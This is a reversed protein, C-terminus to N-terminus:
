NLNLIPNALNFSIQTIISGVENEPIGSIVKYEEEGLQHQRERAKKERRRRRRWENGENSDDGDNYDNYNVINDGSDSNSGHGEGEDDDNDNPPEKLFLKISGARYREVRAVDKVEVTLLPKVMYTNCAESFDPVRFVHTKTVLLFSGDELRCHMVYEDSHYAGKSITRLLTSGEALVPNYPRLTWNSSGGGSSSSSSSGSSQSTSSIYRPNRVRGAGCRYSLSSSSSSSSYSGLAYVSNSSHSNSNASNIIGKATQTAMDLTGVAPKVVAGVMGLGLGKVFGAFGEQRAGKIPEMVVGTVGELIGAGLDKAGFLLGEGLHRPDKTAALMHGRQYDQDMSLLAVGKGLTGLFSRSSTFIGLVTNRILSITGKGLGHAFDKTGKVFGLSPEYFFDYIGKGCFNWLMMPAGICDLRFVVKYLQRLLQTQYYGGVLEALRSESYFPNRLMLASLAIPAREVSLFSMGGLLERVPNTLRGTDDGDVMPAFSFNCRIPNIHLLEFYIVKSNAEFRESSKEKILEVFSNNNSNSRDAVGNGSVSSGKRGGGRKSSSSSSSSSSSNNGSNWSNRRSNNGSNNGSSWNSGNCCCGSSGSSNSYGSNSNSRGSGGGNESSGSGNFLGLFLIFHNLLAEDLSLDFEGIQLALYQFYDVRESSRATSKVASFTIMDSTNDGDDDDRHASPRGAILVPYGTVYLQNDVQFNGVVLTATTKKDGSTHVFRAHTLTAYLLEAPPAASVVSLGVGALEVTLTFQSARARLPSSSSSSTTTNNSNIGSSTSSNLSGPGGFAPSTSRSPLESSPASEADSDGGMGDESVVLVKTAGELKVTATYVTGEESFGGGGGGGGGSSSSSNSSSSNNNNSNGSPVFLRKVLGIKDLNLPKPFMVAGNGGGYSALSPEPFVALLLRRNSHTPEDWAYPITAGPHVTTAIPLVDEDEGEGLNQAVTIYCATENEIRYATEDDVCPAFSVVKTAEVLSVSAWVFRFAEGDSNSDAPVKLCINGIDSVSFERSWARRGASTKGGSGSNGISIVLNRPAEGDQIHLPLMAGPTLDTASAESTGAQRFCITDSSCRNYLIARPRVTIVRTRYFQREGFSISVGFLYLGKAEPGEEPVAIERSIGVSDVDFAQSVETNSARFSIRTKEGSDEQLEPSYM